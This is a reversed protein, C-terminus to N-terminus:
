LPLSASTTRKLAEAFDVVKSGSTTTGITQAKGKISRCVLKGTKPNRRNSIVHEHIAFIDYYLREGIQIFPIDMQNFVDEGIGLLTCAQPRTYLIKDM